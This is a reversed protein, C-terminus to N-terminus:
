TQHSIKKFALALRSKKRAATNKKIVKKKAARDLFKYCEKLSDEAEKIKKQSVLERFKKIAEKLESKVKLRIIRRRKSRRLAKKAAKKIPM